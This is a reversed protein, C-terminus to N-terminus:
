KLTIETSNAPLYAVEAIITIAAAVAAVAPEVHAMPSPCSSPCAKRTPPSCTFFFRQPDFEQGVKKEQPESLSGADEPAQCMLVFHQMCDCADHSYEVEARCKRKRGGLGTIYKPWKQTGVVIEPRESKREIRRKERECM